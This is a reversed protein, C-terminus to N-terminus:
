KRFDPPEEDTPRIPIKTKGWATLFGGRIKVKQVEVADYLGLDKRLDVVPNMIKLIGQVAEPEAPLWDFYVRTNTLMLKDGGEVRIQSIVAFETNVILFEGYGEVWVTDGDLKVTCRKIERYKKVIYDALDQERLKVWGEGVGSQSLRIQGRSKALGFDYRCDPIDASLEAVRLKRLTFDTLRLQLNGIRGSKSRDPETFLPLQDLGFGSATITASHLSGDIGGALTPDVKVSVQGIQGTMKALIDSAAKREFHGKQQDAFFLGGGLFFLGLLGM